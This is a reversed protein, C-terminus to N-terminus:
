HSNEQSKMKKSSKDFETIRRIGWTGRDGLNSGWFHFCVLVAVMGGHRIRLFFEHLYIVHIHGFQQYSPQFVVGHEVENSFLFSCGNKAELERSCSNLCFVAPMAQRQEVTDSYGIFSKVLPLPSLCNSLLWKGSAQTGMTTQTGQRKHGKWSGSQSEMCSSLRSPAASVDWSAKESPSHSPQQDETSKPQSTKTVEAEYLITLPFSLLEM